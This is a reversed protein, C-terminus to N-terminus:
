LSIVYRANKKKGSKNQLIDNFNHIYIFLM